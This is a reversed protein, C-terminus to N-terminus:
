HLCAHLLVIRFFMLVVVSSYSYCLFFFEEQELAMGGHAYIFLSLRCSKDFHFKELGHSKKRTVFVCFGLVYTDINIRLVTMFASLFVVSQPTVLLHCHLHPNSLLDTNTTLALINGETFM